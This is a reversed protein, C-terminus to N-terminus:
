GEVAVLIGNLVDEADDDIAVTLIAIPVEDAVSVHKAFVADLVPHQIGQRYVVDDTLCQRQLVSDQELRGRDLTVIQLHDDLRHLLIDLQSHVIPFIAILFWPVQSEFGIADLQELLAPVDQAVEMTRSRGVSGLSIVKAHERKVADQVHREGVVLELHIGAEVGLGVKLFAKAHQDVIVGYGLSDDDPDKAIFSEVDSVQGDVLALTLDSLTLIVGVKFQEHARSNVQASVKHAAAEQDLDQFRLPQCVFYIVHVLLCHLHVLDIIVLFKRFIIIKLPQGM